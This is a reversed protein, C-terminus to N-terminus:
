ISSGMDLKLPFTTTTMTATGGDYNVLDAIGPVGQPGQPGQPGVGGGGSIITGGPTVGDGIRILPNAPDYFLRGNEGVFVNANANAVRSSWIKQIYDTM